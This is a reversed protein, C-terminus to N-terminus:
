YCKSSLVTVWEFKGAMELGMIDQVKWGKDVVVLMVKFVTDMKFM